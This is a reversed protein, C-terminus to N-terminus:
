HGHRRLPEVNCYMHDPDCGEVEIQITTHNIHFRGALAAAVARLVQQGSSITQEAVVVHCSCAIVGAGIMWVHLDHAALVGPVSHITREVAAMDLGAPTGELLVRVSERLIGWSSWLILLGILMSILPDAPWYGTLAIVIGAVVVGCASLADGIMHWYASRINLDHTHGHLWSGILLNVAVAAVAVGIMPGTQVEAPQRLRITAEWFIMAAVLVLAASNLMAALIGVRHFGFTMGSTSPKGAMRVAYWSLALAAADALNHGADSVLALSGAWYGALAEIAVLAATLIVALRLRTEPVSTEHAQCHDHGM